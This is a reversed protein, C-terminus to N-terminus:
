KTYYYNVIIVENVIGSVPETWSVRIRVPHVNVNLATDAVTIEAATITFIVNNRQVPPIVNPLNIRERGDQIKLEEITEQALFLAQNYNTAVSSAKTTQMFASLLAVLAISVIVMALLSDVFIWGKQKNLITIM